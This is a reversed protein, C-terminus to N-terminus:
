QIKSSLRYVKPDTFSENNSQFVARGIRNIKINTVTRKLSFCPSTRFSKRSQMISNLCAALSSTFPPTCDAFFDFVSTVNLLNSCFLTNPLIKLFIKFYYCWENLLLLGCFDFHKQICQYLSLQRQTVEVYCECQLYSSMEGFRLWEVCGLQVTVITCYTEYVLNFLFVWGSTEIM